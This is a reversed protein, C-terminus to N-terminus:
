RHRLRRSRVGEAYVKVEHGRRWLHAPDAHGVRGRSVAPVRAQSTGGDRRTSADTLRRYGFRMRRATLEKLHTRLAADRKEKGQYRKTSRARGLLRCAHRESMQAGRM